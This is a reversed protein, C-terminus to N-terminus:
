QTEQPVFIVQGVQLLKPDSIQNRNQIWDIRSNLKKAISAISEGPQVTYPIGGNPIGTMDFVVKVNPDPKSITPVSNVAATVKKGFAALERSVLATLERQVVEDRASLDAATKKVLENVQAVTAYSGSQRQAKAEFDEVLARLRANERRMEDMEALLGRMQEMM